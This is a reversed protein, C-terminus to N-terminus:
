KSIKNTSGKWASKKAPIVKMDAKGKPSEAKPAEAPIEAHELWCIADGKSVKDGQQKDIAVLRTNDFATLPEIGHQTQLYFLGM